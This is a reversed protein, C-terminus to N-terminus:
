GTEAATYTNYAETADNRHTINESNTYYFTLNVIEMLVCTVHMGHLIIQSGSCLDIRTM